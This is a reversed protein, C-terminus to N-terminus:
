IIFGIPNRDAQAFYVPLEPFRESMIRSFIKKTWIESEYHGIDAILIEPAYSTFDHYKVDGSIFIDAGAEIATPILSAGSGGCAAVKNVVLHQSDASYRLVKVGFTEKVRRLFEMAPVPAPLTGIIGMGVRPDSPRSELPQPDLLELMHAMEHSVGDWAADLNTHASYISIGSMVANRVIRETPTADGLSKLGKFLLPHHSIILNCNRKEAELMVDENVDLCLLVATVEASPLGVQLGANDYHEQFSRPAFEEIAESILRVTPM